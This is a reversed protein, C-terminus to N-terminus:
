VTIRETIQFGPIERKGAAVMRKGIHLLLEDFEEPWDPWLYRAATTRDTLEVDWRSQAGKAVNTKLARIAIREAEKADELRHEAEERAELDGASAQIAVIAEGKARIAEAALNLDNERKLRTQELLWPGLVEQIMAIARDVKGRKPQIYPNWKAQVAKKGEDFPAAEEVRAADAVNGAERLERKLRVLSDAQRKTTICNMGDLWNKAEGYLDDIRTLPDLNHGIDPM